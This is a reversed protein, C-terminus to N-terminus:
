IRPPATPRSTSRWRLRWRRGTPRRRRTSSSWGPRRCRPAAPPSRFWRAASRRPAASATSELAHDRGAASRPLGQFRRARRASPRGDPELQRPRQGRDEADAVRRGGGQHREALQHGQLRRGPRLVGGAAAAPRAGDGHDARHRPERDRDAHTRLVRRVPELRRRISRPRAAVADLARAAGGAAVGPDHDAGSAARVAGQPDRGSRVPGRGGDGSLHGDRRPGRGPVRRPRALRPASRRHARASLLALRLPAARRRLSQHRLRLRDRVGTAVVAAQASAPLVKLTAVESQYTAGDVEISAPGIEFDGVEKPLLAWQYIVRRSFSGNVMSFQDQTGAFHVAFASLAPLKPEARGAGEVTVSVLAQDEMTMESRNLELRVTQAELARAGVILAVAAAIGALGRRASPTMASRRDSRM